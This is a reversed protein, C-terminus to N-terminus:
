RIEIRDKKFQLQVIASYTNIFIKSIRQDHDFIVKFNEFDIKKVKVFHYFNLKKIFICRKLGELVHLFGYM